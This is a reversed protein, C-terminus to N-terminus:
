LSTQRAKYVVGMGGRGIPELLEFGPVEPPVDAHDAPRTAGGAVTRRAIFETLETEFQPFRELYEGLDLSIERRRRLEHEAVIVGIPVSTDDTLEPYTALYEEVRAADGAKLRLELDIHVLEVLVVRRLGESAPLFTDIGPRPTQRWADEFRGVANKLASWDE